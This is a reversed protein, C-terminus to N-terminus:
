VIEYGEENAFDVFEDAIRNLQEFFERCAAPHREGLLRQQISDAEELLDVLRQWEASRDM